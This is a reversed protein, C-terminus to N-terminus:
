TMLRAIIRETKKVEYPAGPLPSVTLRRVLEQLAPVARVIKSEDILALADFRTGEDDALVWECLVQDAMTRDHDDLNGYLERLRKLGVYSDKLSAAESDVSRRYANM